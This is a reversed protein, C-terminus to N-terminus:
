RNALGRSAARRDPVVIVGASGIPQASRAPSKQPRVGEGEIFPDPTVPELRQPLETVIGTTM